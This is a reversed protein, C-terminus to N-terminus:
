AGEGTTPKGTLLTLALTTWGWGGGPEQWARPVPSKERGSGRQVGPAILGATVWALM